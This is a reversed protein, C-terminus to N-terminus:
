RRLVSIALRLSFNSAITHRLNIPTPCDMSPVVQATPTYVTEAPAFIM